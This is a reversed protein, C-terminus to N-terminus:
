APFPDPLAGLATAKDFSIGIRPPPIARLNIRRARAADLLRPLVSSEVEVCLTDFFSAHVVRYGLRTVAQALLVALTHVREAIRRLGEPGHSRFLTTYPFLTSRPPRRIM